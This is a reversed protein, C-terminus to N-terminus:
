GLYVDLRAFKGDRLAHAEASQLVGDGVVRSEGARDTLVIRKAQVGFADARGPNHYVLITDGLINVAYTGAELELQKVGSDSYYDTKETKDSFLWGALAPEPRFELEGRANLRFPERGLAMILYMNYFESTTGSLRAVYGTGHSDPDPNSSSAIFSSNEFLSRGYVSADMFPVFATRIYRYFEEYLGSKLVELLYKYEMHMFVSENELWGPTFARVRGMEVPANGLPGNVKFMGLKKDYLSSKEVAATLAKAKASDKEIKLAHVQAELFEPMPIQEFKQVSILVTRTKGDDSTKESIVQYDVPINMFYTDYIGATNRARALGADLKRVALGLWNKLENQGIKKEAGDIGFLTKERYQEKATATGDWYDFDSGGTTSNKLESLVKEFLEAQEVPLSVGSDVSDALWKQLLLLLRKLEFTESSSSGFMGPMGNTADDWNPKDAEMEIGVGNADLTALKVTALFVLKSLLSTRYIEGKGFDTRVKNPELERSKILRDKEASKRLAHLQMPRGNHLFYKERRPQIYHSDDFYSFLGNQFLLEKM